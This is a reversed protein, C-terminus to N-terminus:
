IFSFAWLLITVPQVSKWFCMNLFQSCRGFYNYTNRKIIYNCNNKIEKHKKQNRWTSRLSPVNWSNLVSITRVVQHTTSSRGPALQPSLDIRSTWTSPSSSPPLPPWELVGSGPCLPGMWSTCAESQELNETLLAPLKGELLNLLFSQCPLFLYKLWLVSNCLLSFCLSFRLHWSQLLFSYNVIMSSAEM